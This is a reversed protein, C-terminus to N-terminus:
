EISAIKSHPAAFSRWERKTHPHYFSFAFILFIPSNIIVLGWLGYGYLEHNM